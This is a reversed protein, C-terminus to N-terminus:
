TTKLLYYNKNLNITSQHLSQTPFPLHNPSYSLACRYAEKYQSWCRDNGPIAVLKPSHFAIKTEPDQTM